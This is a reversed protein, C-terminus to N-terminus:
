PRFLLEGAVPLLVQRVGIGREGVERIRPRSHAQSFAAGQKPQWLEGYKVKAKAVFGSNLFRLKCFGSQRKSMECPSTLMNLDFLWQM